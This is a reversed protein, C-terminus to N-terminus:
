VIITDYMQDHVIESTCSSESALMYGALVLVFWYLIRNIELSKYNLISFEQYKKRNFVQYKSFFCIDKMVIFQKLIIISQIMLLLIATFILKM